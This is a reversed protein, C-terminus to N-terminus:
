SARPWTTSCSRASSPTTKPWRQLTAKRVKAFAADTPAFVTFPGKGQLAGALGAQKVLKVLM